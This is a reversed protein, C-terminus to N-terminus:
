QKNMLINYYREKGKKSTYVGSLVIKEPTASIIRYQDVDEIQAVKLDIYLLTNEERIKNKDLTVRIPATFAEYELEFDNPGLKIIKTGYYEGEAIDKMFIRQSTYCNGSLTVSPTQSSGAAGSIIADQTSQEIMFIINSGLMAATMKLKNYAREQLKGISSLTTTGKAKAGINDLKILGAVESEINSIQVNNWDEASLVTNLNSRHTFEQIRGSKFRIKEITNLNVTNLLDEGPYTFKVSTETIETILVPVVEGTRYFISDNQALVVM